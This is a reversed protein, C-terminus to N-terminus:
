QLKANGIKNPETFNYNFYNKSASDNKKSNKWKECETSGDIMIKVDHFM